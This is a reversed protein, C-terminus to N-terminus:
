AATDNEPDGVVEPVPVEEVSRGLRAQLREALDHIKSHTGLEVHAAVYRAITQKTTLGIKSRAQSELEAYDDFESRMAAEYDKGMVCFQDACNIGPNSVYPSLDEGTLGMSKLLDQHDRHDVEQNDSDFIVYYPIEYAACIRVWRPISNKGGCSVFRWGRRYADPAVRLILEPLAIEETQGEVLVVGTSLLGSRVETTAAAEYFELTAEPTSKPAGLRECHRTFWSPSRQVITTARENEELRHVRVAGALRKLSVFYPSHTTILVQLGDTAFRLVQSSLWEQAAPHLHAEPEEIILLLQDESASFARAYAYGFAIALLQEQGTGMEDLSRQEGDLTAQMRLSHFFNSADYASMDVELGYELALSLKESESRLNSRFSAFEPVGQFIENLESFHSKLRDLREPDSVLAAHFQRMLKSLWTYKSAYGLQYSLRRDAGVIIARLSGRDENTAYVKNGYEDEVNFETRRPTATLTQVVSGRAYKVPFDDVEASIVIKAGTSRNRGSFDHDEPKFSGPYMEGLVLDIARVINSKGSNNEGFLVVPCAEPMNISIPDDVSRYGEINVQRLRPMKDGSGGSVADIDSDSCTLENNRSKRDQYRVKYLARKSTDALSCRTM